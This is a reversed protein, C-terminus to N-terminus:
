KDKVYLKFDSQLFQLIFYHYNGPHYFLTAGQLLYEVSEPDNPEINVSDLKAIWISKKKNIQLYMSHTYDCYSYCKIINNGKILYISGLYSEIPLDGEDIYQTNKKFKVQSLKRNKIIKKSSSNIDTQCKIDYNLQKIFDDPKSNNKPM